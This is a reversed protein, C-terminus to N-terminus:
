RPPLSGRWAPPHTRIQYEFLKPDFYWYEGPKLRPFQPPNLNRNFWPLINNRLAWIAEPIMMDEIRDKADKSPVPAWGTPTRTYGLESVVGAEQSPAGQAVSQREMPKTLVQGPPLGGGTLATVDGQGSLGGTPGAANPFAPGTGQNLRAIQSRLLDNQLEMNQLRLTTAQQAEVSAEIKAASREEETSGQMAARAINQGHRGLDSFDFGGGGVFSPTFSHTQAGLAYLPHIGAAKADAVKWRVGQQAFERQAELNARSTDEAQDKGFLGGAVSGLISGAAGIIAPLVM